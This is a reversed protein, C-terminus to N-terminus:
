SASTEAVALLLAAEAAAKDGPALEGELVKETLFSKWKGVEPGPPIRLLAMIEGGELPSELTQRPTQKEVSELTERIQTLDVRPSGAKHASQDAEVLALLRSTQDGLDRILRRAASLSLKGATGLRMHHRILLCVQEIDRVPLRLRRLLREAIKAGVEEHGFFRTRGGEDVFRTEPKGVDHLLAAWSLVLDGPPVSQLALLSHHWVDLHHYDGQEVGALEVLEPAFQALLGLEEMEQFAHSASPLLLMKTLEDRIREGSIIKLRHAEARISEYLGEAPLFNLKWRFRVARLMRLPDDHFTAAPELPTRLLKSELDALGVGLPDKLEGTHLNRMLTNITFDRRLADEELTAPEVSPKRSGEEYSERRATVLEIQAGEVMVMATGFREYTVPPITSIRQKYLYLALDQSSGQLVIDFDDPTSGYLLEDRVAGGVLWLQAEFSTGATARRIAELAPHM